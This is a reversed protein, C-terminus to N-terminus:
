AMFHTVDSQRVHFESKKNGSGKRRPKRLRKKSRVTQLSWGALERRGLEGAGLPVRGPKMAPHASAHQGPLREGPYPIRKAATELDPM